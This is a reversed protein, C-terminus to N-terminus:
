NDELLKAAEMSACAQLAGAAAALAEKGCKKAASKVPKLHANCAALSLCLVLAVVVSYRTHGM